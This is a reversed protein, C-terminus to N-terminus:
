RETNNQSYNQKSAIKKNLLFSVMKLSRTVFSPIESLRSTLTLSSVPAISPMMRAECAFLM